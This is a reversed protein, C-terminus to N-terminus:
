FLCFSEILFDDETCTFEKINEIKCKLNSAVKYVYTNHIIGWQLHHCYCFFMVKKTITLMKEGPIKNAHHNSRLNFTLLIGAISVVRYTKRHQRPFPPAHSLLCLWANPCIIVCHCYTRVIDLTTSSLILTTSVILLFFFLSLSMPQAAMKLFRQGPLVM